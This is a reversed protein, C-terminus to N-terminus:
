CARLVYINTKKEKLKEYMPPIIEYHGVCTMYTELSSGVQPEWLVFVHGNTVKFKKKSCM